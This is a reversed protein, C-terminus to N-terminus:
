DVAETKDTDSLTESASPRLPNTEPESNSGESPVKQEKAAHMKLHKKLSSQDTYTKGCQSCLFVKEKTHVLEHRKLHGSRSFSKSCYTCSYEKEGTHTRQHLKLSSAVTFKKGCENCSYPREGTHMRMHITLHGAQSFTKKCLECSYPREGTHIRYHTKLDGLGNFRKGCQACCYPKEGTHIREHIRLNGANSFTKGCEQCSYPREGTHTRLHVKLQNHENFRKGCHSCCYPKEGTHIRKHIRLQSPHAYTKSCVTCCYPREGTHTRKHSKLLDARGFRKGCYSCSHVKEASHTKIHTNLSTARSFTKPCTPCRLFNDNNEPLEEAPVAPSNNEDHTEGEPELVQSSEGEPDGLSEPSNQLVHKLEQKYFSDDNSNQLVVKQEEEVEEEETKIFHGDQMYSDSVITVKFDCDSGKSQQETGSPPLLPAYANQSDCSVEMSENKVPMTTLNLLTPPQSLDIACNEELGPETKVCMLDNETSMSVETTNVCPQEVIHNTQLFCSPLSISERMKDKHKRRCSKKDSSCISMKFQTSSIPRSNWESANETADQELLIDRGATERGKQALLLLRKLGENEAEMRHITGQYESLTRDVSDLIDSVTARFIENLSSELFTKLDGSQAM